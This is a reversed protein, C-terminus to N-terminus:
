VLYMVEPISRNFFDSKSPAHESVRNSSSKKMSRM